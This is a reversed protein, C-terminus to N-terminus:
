VELCSYLHMWINYFALNSQFQKIVVRKKLNCTKMQYFIECGEVLKM